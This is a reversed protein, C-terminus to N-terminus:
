GSDSTLTHVHTISHQTSVPLLPETDTFVVVFLTPVFLALQHMVECKPVLTGDVLVWRLFRSIETLEYSSDVCFPRSLYPTVMPSVSSVM